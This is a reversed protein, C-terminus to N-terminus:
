ITVCCNQDSRPCKLGSHTPRTGCSPIVMMATTMATNAITTIPASVTVTSTPPAHILASESHVRNARQPEGEGSSSATTARGTRGRVSSDRATAQEREVRERPTVVPAADQRTADEADNWPYWPIEANRLEEVRLVARLLREHLSAEPGTYSCGNFTLEARVEAASLRGINRKTERKEHSRM